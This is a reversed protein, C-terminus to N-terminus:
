EIPAKTRKRREVISELRPDAVILSDAYWASYHDNIRVKHEDRYLAVFTRPSFREEGTDLAHSAATFLADWFQVGADSRQFATFADSAGEEKSYPEAPPGTPPSSIFTQGCDTCVHQHGSRDEKQWRCRCFMGTDNRCPTSSRADCPQTSGFMDPQTM